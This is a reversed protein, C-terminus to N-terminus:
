RNAGSCAKHPQQLTEIVEFKGWDPHDRYYDHDSNGYRRELRALLVRGVPDLWGPRKQRLDALAERNVQDSTEPLETIPRPILRELHYERLRYNVCRNFYRRVDSIRYPQLPEFRYGVEPLYTIYEHKWDYPQITRAGFFKTAMHDNAWMGVPLRINYQRLKELQSGRTGHLGGFLLRWKEIASQYTKRNRGSLPWGSVALFQDSSLLQDQMRCLALDQCEVDGDMFFHAPSDDALEHVYINWAHCKDGLPIVVPVIGPREAAYREVVQQTNDSCGNILVYIRLDDADGAGRFVSDLARVIRPGENHAFVAVRYTQCDQM